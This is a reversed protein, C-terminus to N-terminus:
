KEVMSSGINGTLNFSDVFDKNCETLSLKKLMLETTEATGINTMSKRLSWVVDLEKESLLLEERRTGSKNIDIAPFIRREALKRDLHLEMNGTGKFEEYIVDDMRSGTDVLATAIITLSGGGEINRAAGFFKKPKYLAGPDVGGSLTRGTPTITLNYARALRTISDLLIVVDKGLEVLRMARELVMEAAKVHHEPQEDFTSYIVEGSTNRKMDTVEEPREDILLIFLDMEPNNKKIANAIRKLLVTKGAKPPSVILGRQGKGIPAILDIIRSPYEKKSTELTLRETPYIPILKDFNPRRSMEYAQVGNVTHLFYLPCYKDSQLPPKVKGKLWDGTRLGFRKIQSPAVYVDNSGTMYNTKRMFGFGDPLIELVGEEVVDNPDDKPEKKGETQKDTEVVEIESNESNESNEPNGLNGTQKEPNDESEEGVSKGKIPKRGRPKKVTPKRGTEKKVETKKGTEQNEETKDEAKDEVASEAVVNETVVAKKPNKGAVKKTAAKRRTSSKKVNKEATDRETREESVVQEKVAVEQKEVATEPEPTTSEQATIVAILDSKKMTSTNKLGMMKAIVKLDALKKKSLDVDPM